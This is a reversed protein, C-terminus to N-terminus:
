NQPCAGWASLIAVLDNHDVRGDGGLPYIDAPCASAPALPQLYLEYWKNYTKSSQCPGWSNLVAMLDASDVKGDRTIDSPCVACDHWRAINSAPSDGVANFGGGAILDGNYVALSFVGSPDDAHLCWDVCNLDNGFFQWSAGNWRAVNPTPYQADTVFEGAIILNGNYIALAQISRSGDSMTSGMAHWAAGNWRAVSNADHGGATSFGGAVILENQYM